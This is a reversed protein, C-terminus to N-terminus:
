TPTPTPTPDGKPGALYIDMANLVHQTFDNGTGRQVDVVLLPESM